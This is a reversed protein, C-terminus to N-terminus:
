LLSIAGLFCGCAIAFSLSFKQPNLVIVPLVMFSISLFLGGIALLGIIYPMYLTYNYAATATEGAGQFIGQTGAKMKDFIGTPQAPQQGKPPHANKSDMSKYFSFGWGSKNSDNNM